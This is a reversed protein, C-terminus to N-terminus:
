EVQSNQRIRGSISIDKDLCTLTYNESISNTSSIDPNVHNMTLQSNACLTSWDINDQQDTQTSYISQYIGNWTFDIQNKDTFYYIDQELGDITPTIAINLMATSSNSSSFYRCLKFFENKSYNSPTYHAISGVLLNRRPKDIGRVSDISIFTRDKASNIYQIDKNSYITTGDLTQLTLSVIRGSKLASPNTLMVSNNSLTSMSLGEDIGTMLSWYLNHLNPDIYAASIKKDQGITVFEDNGADMMLTPM